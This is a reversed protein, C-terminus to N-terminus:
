VAKSDKRLRQVGVLALLGGFMLAWTSPEPASVPTGINLVDAYAAANGAATGDSDAIIISGVPASGAYGYISLGNLTQDGANLVNGTSISQLVSDTSTLSPDVVANVNVSGVTSKYDFEFIVLSNTLSSIGNNGGSIATTRFAPSGYAGSSIKLYGDWAGSANREIQISGAGITGLSIASNGGFDQGLISVFVSGYNNAGSTMGASEGTIAHNLNNSGYNYGVPAVSGGTSVGAYTFPTNVTAGLYAYTGSETWGPATTLQSGQPYNFNDSFVVQAKSATATAGLAIAVAGAAFLNKTFGSAKAGVKFKTHKTM